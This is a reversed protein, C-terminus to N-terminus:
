QATVTILLDDAYEGALLRQVAGLEVEFQHRTQGLNQVLLSATGVGLALPQGSLRVTYAIKTDAMDRLRANQLHGYNQSSLAIRYPTNAWIDLVANRRAGASIEGFDLRAIRGGGGAFTVKSVAESKVAIVIDREDLTAGAANVLRLHIPSQYVGAGIWQQTLPSMWIAYTAVQGAVLNWSALDNPAAQLPITGAGDQSLWLRLGAIDAGVLKMEGVNDLRDLQLRVACNTVARVRFTFAYQSRYGTSPDYNPLVAQSPTDLQCTDAYSECAMALMFALMLAQGGKHM